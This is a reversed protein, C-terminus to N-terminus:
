PKFINKKQYKYTRRNKATENFVAVVFNYFLRMHPMRHSDHHRNNGVTKAQLSNM